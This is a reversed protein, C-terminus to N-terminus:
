TKKIPLEHLETVVFYNVGLEKLKERLGHAGRDVLAIAVRVDAGFDKLKKVENLLSDGTTVVDELVCVRGKPFGLFYKDEQAGHDKPRGRGMSLVHSGPGFNSSHKAFKYQTIIGLKTAGEPVGYFTDVEIGNEKVFESVFDSLRDLLYADEALRRFNIYLNSRKGSKLVIPEKYYQLVGNEIIFKIFSEKNFAM